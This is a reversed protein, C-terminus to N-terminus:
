TTLQNHLQTNLQNTPQNTSKNTPQNTPQNTSQNTPQNTLETGAIAWLGIVGTNQKHESPSAPLGVSLTHGSTVVPPVRSAVPAASSFKAVPSL